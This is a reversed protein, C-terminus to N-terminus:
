VIARQCSNSWDHLRERCGRRQLAEGDIAGTVLGSGPFLRHAFYDAVHVAVAPHFGPAPVDDPTHHCRVAEVVQNSMGWLGLLYAGVEAHTVGFVEKEASHVTGGSQEAKALVQNYQEGMNKVLIIRGADHLLGGLFCDNTIVKGTKEAIGIARAMRGTALCHRVFVEYPRGLFEPLDYLSFVHASLVIARVTELGLLNVAQTPDAVHRPLGLFASNALQLIKASMGVDRAILEGVQQLSTEPLALEAVLQDYLAPLSPLEGIGAIMSQLEQNHLRDRLACAREVVEKLATIDCPKSLYQHAPQIARLLLDRDGYGSLIIRVMQPHRKMVEILLHIGDMGPMRQDAVIVDCERTELFALAEAANATFHTDWDATTHLLRRLGELANPEDDVFLVTRKM